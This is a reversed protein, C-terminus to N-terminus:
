LVPSSRLSSTFTRKKALRVQKERIKELSGEPDRWWGVMDAEGEDDAWSRIREQLDMRMDRLEDVANKQTLITYSGRAVNIAKSVPYNIAAYASLSLFPVVAVSAAPGHMSATAISAAPYAVCCGVFATLLRMTAVVSVDNTMKETGLTRGAHWAIGAIPLHSLTGILSLPAFFMLKAVDRKAGNRLKALRENLPDTNKGHSSVYKDTINLDDLRRKYLTLDAWIEKFKETHAKNLSLRMFNRTMDAYQALSLKTQHPKYIRRALHMHEVFDRDDIISNAPDSGNLAFFAKRSVQRQLQPFFEPTQPGTPVSSSDFPNPTNPHNVSLSISTTDAVTITQFNPPPLSISELLSTLVTTWDPTKITCDRLRREIEDTVAACLEYKKQKSGAEYESIQDPTLMIPNGVDVLVSGRFAYGSPSSYSLGLPVIPVISGDDCATEFAM